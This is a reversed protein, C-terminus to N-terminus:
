EANCIESLTWGKEVPPIKPSEMWGFIRSNELPSHVANEPIETFSSLRPLYVWIESKKRQGPTETGTSIAVPIEPIKQQITRMESILFERVM